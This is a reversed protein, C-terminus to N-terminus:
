RGSRRRKSEDFSPDDHRRKRPGGPAGSPDRREEEWGPPGGRGLDEHRGAGGGGRGGRRSDEQGDRRGGRGDNGNWNASPQGPFPGSMPVSPGHPQRPPGGPAGGGRSMRPLQDRTSRDEAHRYDDRPGARLERAGPGPGGSHMPYPPQRFSPENMTSRGERSPNRSGHHRESRDDEARRDEGSRDTRSQFLDSRSSAATNLPESPAPRGDISSRVQPPEMPSAVSAVASRPGASPLSGSPQRSSAGRFNVGQGNAGNAPTAGQLTANISARQRQERRQRETAPGSPPVNSSPGPGTPTGSPPGVRAPGRPGSPAAATPSSANRPGNPTQFGTQIPPVQGLQAARSPHVSPGAGNAAANSTPSPATSRDPHAESSPRGPGGRFLASPDPTRSDTPTSIASEPRSNGPNTFSRGGRNSAGNAQRPGSPADQPGNLRGYNSEGQPPGMERLRGRKPGTPTFDSQQEVRSFTDHQPEPPGRGSQRRDTRVNFARDDPRDEREHRDREGRRPSPANSSDGQIMALREPNVQTRTEQELPQASTAEAMSPRTSQSTQSAEAAVVASEIRNPREAALSRESPRSTLQPRDHSDNFRGQQAPPDRRSGKYAEQQFNRVDQAHWESPRDRSRVERGTRSEADAPSSRGRGRHGPSQERLTSHTDKPPDLRGYGDDRGGFRPGPRSAPPGPPPKQLGREVRSPLGQSAMRNSGPQTSASRSSDSRQVATGSPEPRSYGQAPTSPKSDPKAPDLVTKQGPSRSAGAPPKQDEKEVIKTETESDAASLKVDSASAEAKLVTEGDKVKEDEIEGDEPGGAVSEKRDAVVGAQSFGPKFETATASLRPTSTGAQQSESHATQSGSRASDKSSDNLRFAQPLVWLKERSKLPGLLSMAALKLDQRPDDKSITTVHDIMNKGMFKLAPFTQHIGKLVIIGNRIHMYEQSEFCAQLAGNLYAHFNFLMRRFNEYDMVTKPDGHEDFTKVFGPLKTKQGLAEKEYVVKEAHWRHLLKLTECLFRALHQAENATCQFILATLEQRRFLQYLLHMLSFGPTAMDHLAKLMQFAYHADISSMMARPLFCEQLLGLHKADNEAKQESPHRGQLSGFWHSKENRLRNRVVTYAGLHQNPEQRIKEYMDALANRKKVREKAALASVDSRDNKIENLQTELRKIERHYTDMPVLVDPLSLTWFTTYFPMSVRVALDPAVTQLGQIVPELVPHWSYVSATQDDETVQNPDEVVNAQDPPINSEPAASGENKINAENTAVDGNKQEKKSEADQKKATDFEVIRAQLATRCITLAMAPEIGFERVLDTVSPVAAEFDTPQLNTRLVDLYQHFVAQIKDLNNGLVKLPMFRATEHHSYMQREQAIAILTQGILRPRQLAEMLRRAESKKQHRADSLQSLIHTRLSPGGAMAVVQADNFEVDSRIGAMEVLVQEFLELDTSNGVRLESALYQLIPSLSIHTYRAFLSAVFQSLAQLWSSTLMGDAQMRNRGQGSLSNILAWTLVDWALPSFYRTCEVLSPIMNSYSELQNIMEMMVIGPSALAVKGLARSQKKVFDNSVRRLVDRVEAKNRAFASQMDPLRSTRGTFWEAYIKYRTALPFFQLLEYVLQALQPNHKSCSLAPVLLRKMLELWRARNSDAQDLDLSQKALRLLTGYLVPDQGIKPGIYGLFTNCLLFVDELNQCVPLNDSWDTYYHRYEQGDDENIADNHLWRTIKKPLRPGFLLTGDPRATTDGLQDKAASIDQRAPLPEASETMKSLMHRAIRQLFPPLTVDVEALWPFRGLIYLAEPLAGILLLAKLLWIKQNKPPPLEQGRDEKREQAPTAGGSKEKDNRRSVPATDDVLAGAMLLANMGGGPRDKAEKDAKEKELRAREASMEDDAPYLHPYLDRLSIFGIKILLAALYIVNDPLMDTADRAASAYFRLKFGLLQAADFNGPPPLSRTERMYRRAENIRLRKDPNIERQRNDMEPQVETELTPLVSDFDVIERNGIEFFADMGIGRVREWFKTDRQGRLMALDEREGDSLAWRGSGPLAWKPLTSFGRDEHQIGDFLENDPWWSSARYFKIFFPYAKVLLNASVDLTIDLVRGVDLDFAGVLAKVRGFADEAMYPDPDRRSSAEEATNFYETILKAYGESEERLLNFNAQRYLLNTTQRVRMRDFTDRVLGLDILTSNDLQQRIYAHDIGTAPLLQRLGPGKFGAEHMLSLTNLFLAKVDPHDGDRLRVIEGVLRGSQVATLRGDLASRIVETIIDSLTYEDVSTASDAIARASAESWTSLAKDTVHIYRFTQKGHPPRPTNNTLDDDGNSQKETAASPNAM